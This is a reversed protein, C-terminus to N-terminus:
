GYSKRFKPEAEPPKAQAGPEAPSTKQEEAKAEEPTKAPESQATEFYNMQVTSVTDKLLRAEDSDLNGKTKAEFMVLMDITAQAADLDVECKRTLPNPLKGLHQMTTTALMMVTNLFVAKNIDAQSMEKSM